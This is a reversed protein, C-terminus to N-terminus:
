ILISVATEQPAMVTYLVTRDDVMLANDNFKGELRVLDEYFEEAARGNGDRVKEGDEHASDALGKISLAYELLSQDDAVESSLLYPLHSALLWARPHKVPLSDLVDQETFDQLEDLSQPLPRFLSSPKNPVFSQYYNQLYNVATHQPSAIHICMTVADVLSEFTQITPFSPINAGQPSQIEEVWSQLYHDGAVTSDAPYHPRLINTVFKRLANWMLYMNKAYVYNHLKKSELDEIKFGRRELDHPIYGAVFDFSEYQAMVFSATQKGTMGDIDYIVLPILEARAAANLPLTNLWHPSLIEFVPHDEPITRHSAVIIAEEILHTHTLHAGLEHAHWDSVQTCMKAYRWPWDTAESRKSDTPSLRKNFITVSKTINEKYDLIIAIPHLKGASTLQFLSVAACGWRKGDDSQLPSTPKAGVFKRFYSYDQIFLSGSDLVKMAAGNEQASAAAKFQRVWDDSAARISTPNVGTFQQQAYVEDSYWDKRTGINSAKGIDRREEFLHKNVAEIRAFSKQNPEDYLFGLIKEPIIEPVIPATAALRSIDFLKLENTRPEMSLHPPFGDSGPPQFQFRHRKEELSAIPLPLSPEFGNVDFFSTYTKNVLGFVESLAKKTGVYTGVEIKSSGSSDNGAFISHRLLESKLVGKNWKVPFAPKSSSLSSGNHLM